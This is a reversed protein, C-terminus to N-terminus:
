KKILQNIQQFIYNSSISTFGNIVKTEKDLLIVRPMKSTLLKNANSQANIFYQNKTKLNYIKEASTTNYEITYFTIEPYKKQLFNIRSSIYSKSFHELSWFLLCTYKNQLLQKITHTENSFDTVTFDEIEKGVTLYKSDNLLLKLQRADNKNTTLEFFKEFTKENVSTNFKTYFHEIVTQKLFVNKSISTNIKQNITQLLDLTFKTSYEEFMPKHGLNYTTNYLFSRVYKSYPYYYMLSDNNLRIQNRHKYFTSTTEPFDKANTYRVYALPYNEIRTYIPYTLAVKLITNYAPTEESHSSVYEQYTSLKVKLISDMKKQFASPNLKYLPYFLQNDKEDEVFCDILLNNREAGKGAFVLSEDFDWTNLRIQLSDRPEIYVYQHELGHKFYYLGEKANHIKGIFKDNANLYFTDIVKDMSYLVIYKSKPNIIKGGFYTETNKSDSNCRTFTILVVLLIIHLIQKLM